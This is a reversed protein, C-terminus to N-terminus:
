KDAYLTQIYPCIELTLVRCYLLCLHLEIRGCLFLTHNHFGRDEMHYLSPLRTHQTCLTFHSSSIPLSSLQAAIYTTCLNQVLCKISAALLCHLGYNNSIANKYKQFLFLTTSHRPFDEFTICTIFNPM